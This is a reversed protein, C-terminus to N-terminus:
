HVTSLSLRAIFDLTSRGSRRYSALLNLMLLEQKKLRQFWRALDPSPTKLTSRIGDKSDILNLTAM